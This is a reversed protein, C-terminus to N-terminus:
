TRQKKATKRTMINEPNQAPQVVKVQKEVQFMNSHDKPKLM